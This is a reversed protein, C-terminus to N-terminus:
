IPFLGDVLAKGYAVTGEGRGVSGVDHGSNMIRPRTRLIWAGIM